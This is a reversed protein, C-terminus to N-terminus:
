GALLAAHVTKCICVLSQIGRIKKRARRRTQLRQLSQQFPSYSVWASGKGGGSGVSLRIYVTGHRSTEETLYQSAAKADFPLPQGKEMLAIDGLSIDVDNANYPVGAYRCLCAEEIIAFIKSMM